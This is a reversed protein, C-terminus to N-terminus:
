LLCGQVTATFATDMGGVGLEVDLGKRMLQDTLFRACRLEAHGLEPHGHVFEMAERADSEHAAVAALVDPDGMQKHEPGGIMWWDPHQTYRRRLAQRQGATTQQGTDSM